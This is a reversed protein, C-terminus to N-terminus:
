PSTEFFIKLFIMYSFVRFWFDSSNANRKILDNEFDNRVLKTKILHHDDKLLDLFKDAFFDYILITNINPRRSKRKNWRIEDPTNFSVQRLMNKNFGFKFHERYSFKMVKNFLEYDIFPVRLELGYSMSLHDLTILDSPILSRTFYNKLHTKYIVETEYNLKEFDKKGLFNRETDDLSEDNLYKWFKQDNYDTESDLKNKYDRFNNLNTSYDLNTFTSMSRVTEEFLTFENDLELCYLYPNLLREYGSYLEDAGEGVLLVKAASKTAIKKFILDQMLWGSTRLPSSLLKIKSELNELYDNTNDEVKKIELGKIQSIFKDDLECKIFNTDLTYSNLKRSSYKAAAFTIYTSDIGGSLTSAVEVDSILHDHVIKQLDNKHESYNFKEKQSLDVSHLHTTLREESIKFEELSLKLIFGPKVQKIEKFFTNDIDFSLGMRLFRLSQVYDENFDKLLNLIPAQESCAVFIKDKHSAIKVNNSYFLPKIGFPDRIFYFCKSFRDFLSIAYMGRINNIIGIGQESIQTILFLTDSKFKKLNNELSSDVSYIEGNFSMVYRGCKSSIPQASENSLDRISLRYFLNYIGNEKYISKSDPGRHAIKSASKEFRSLSNENYKTNSIATFFGCM